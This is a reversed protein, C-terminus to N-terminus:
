KSAPVQGRAPYKALIADVAPGVLRSLDGDGYLRMATFGHWVPELSKADFVDIALTGETYTEVDDYFPDWYWWYYRRWTPGYPGWPTLDVKERSGVTFAVALDANERPAKLYGKAEFGRVIAARLAPEILPSVEADARKMLLPEESVFAFSTASEFRYSPVHETRVPLGTACAGLWLLLVLPALRLM